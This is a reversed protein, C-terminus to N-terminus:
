LRGYCGLGSTGQSAVLSELWLSFRALSNLLLLKFSICRTLLCYIIVFLMYIMVHYCLVDWQLAAICFCKLKFLELLSQCFTFLSQLLLCNKRVVCFPDLPFMILSFHQQKGDGCSFSSFRSLTFCPHSKSINALLKNKFTISIVLLNLM